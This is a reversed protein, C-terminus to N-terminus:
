NELLRIYSHPLFGIEAQPDLIKLWTGNERQDLVEVKLGAPLPKEIVRAYQEGADRFLPAAKILVGQVPEIYRTYFLGSGLYLVVCGIIVALFTWLPLPKWIYLSLLVILLAFFLAFLLFREPLSLWPHLTVIEKWVEQSKDPPLSLKAKAIQLNDKVDEVRPLLQEARYYYYIALPYEGLQFYTNGINYFLRGSGNEKELELYASLANNFAEKRAAINQAQEGQRYASQAKQLLDQPPDSNFFQFALIFLLLSQM